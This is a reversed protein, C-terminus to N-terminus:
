AFVGKFWDLEGKVTKLLDAKDFDYEFHVIYPMRVGRADQQDMETDPAAAPIRPIGVFTSM